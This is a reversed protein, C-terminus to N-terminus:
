SPRRIRRGRAAGDPSFALANTWSDLKIVAEEVVTLQGSPGLDVLRVTGSRYGVALRGSSPSFQIVHVQDGPSPPELRGLSESPQTANWLQLVGDSDGVALWRLNPSYAVAKVVFDPKGAGGVAVPPMPRPPEGSVLSWRQVDPGSGGAAVESGNDTIAISQVSTAFTGLAEGVLTSSESDRKWVDVGANTGGAAIWVGDPSMAISYYDVAGDVATITSERRAVSEGLDFLAVEGTAANSAAVM